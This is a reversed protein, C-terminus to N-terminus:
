YMQLPLAEGWIATIRGLAQATAAADGAHARALAQVQPFHRVQVAPLVVPVVAMDALAVLVVCRSM